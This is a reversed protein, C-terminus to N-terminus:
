KHILCVSTHIVQNSFCFDIKNFNKFELIVKYVELFNDQFEKLHLFEESEFDYVAAGNLLIVPCNVLKEFEKEKLYDALRGTAITFTGGESKFYEIAKKNEDPLEQNSNTLTGDIDSVILVGDFKGM